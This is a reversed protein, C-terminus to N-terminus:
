RFNYHNSSRTQVQHTLTHRTINSPTHTNMDPRPSHRRLRVRVHRRAAGEPAESRERSGEAESRCMEPEPPNRRPAADAHPATQRRGARDSERRRSPHSQRLSADRGLWARRLLPRIAWRPHHRIRPFAGFRLPPFIRRLRVRLTRLCGRPPGRVSAPVGCPVARASSHRRSPGLIPLRAAVPEVGAASHCLISQSHAKLNAASAAASSSRM